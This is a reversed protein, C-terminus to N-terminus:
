LTRLTAVGFQLRLGGNGPPVSGVPRAADLQLTLANGYRWRLGLGVAARTGDFGTQSAALAGVDAFLAMSLSRRLMRALGEDAPQWPLPRWYEGQVSWASRGVAAEERYGRVSDPGGFPLYETLPAREGVRAWRGRLVGYELRGFMGQASAEARLTGFGEGDARGRAVGFAAETRLSTPTGPQSRQLALGADVLTTHRADVPGDDHRLEARSRSLGFETQGFSGAHDRWLDLVGRLDIGKRREDPRTGDTARDPTFDSYARGNLQLRRGLTAFGVFDSDYSLSGSAERQRGVGIGISDGPALGDRRYGASLKVPKGSRFEAAAEVHHRPPRSAERQRPTTPVAGPDVRQADIPLAKRTCGADPVDPADASCEASAKPLDRPTACAPLDAPPPTDAAEAVPEVILLALHQMPSEGRAKLAAAHPALREHFMALRAQYGIAGLRQLREALMGQTYYQHAVQLSSGDIGAMGDDLPLQLASPQPSQPLWVAKAACLHGRPDDRVRAFDASPLLLYLAREVSEYPGRLYVAAIMPDPELLIRGGLGRVGDAGVPQTDLWHPRAVRINAQEQPLNSAAGLNRAGSQDAARLQSSTALGRVALYDQIVEEIRQRYWLRCRMGALAAQALGGRVAEWQEVNATARLRLDRLPPAIEFDMLGQRPRVPSDPDVVPLLPGDALAANNEHLAQFVTALALDHTVLTSGRARQAQSWRGLRVTADSWPLRGQWLASADADQGSQVIAELERQRAPNDRTELLEELVRPRAAFIGQLYGSLESSVAEPALHCEDFVNRASGDHWDIRESGPTVALRGDRLEVQVTFTPPTPLALAPLM